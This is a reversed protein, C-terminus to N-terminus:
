EKREINKRIETSSIDMQFHEQPIEDFMALFTTPIAIDELTKFDGKSTRGAVLFTAGKQRLIELAQYMKEVSDSYYKPAVLREATDAGLVFTSNPYLDAKQHFFPARSLLLTDFGLFQVARKRLVLPDLPPKDANILPLEFVVDNGLHTSAVKSLEKHGEHLPNFSGSLLATSPLVNGTQLNGNPEIKLWQTKGELLEALESTPIFTQQVTEGQVLVLKPLDYVGCAEAIAYLILWSVLDEEGQRDRTGKFLVLEYSTLGFPDCISVVCRHDGKKARDTAITATCGVGFVPTEPKALKRARAFAHKALAEGVEVSTFKEPTYGVAEILSSPVYRDTAELVTRSSGGVSHLWAL